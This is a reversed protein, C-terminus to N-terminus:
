SGFPARRWPSDAADLLTRAMEVFQALTDHGGWLSRGILFSAAYERWGPYNTQVLAAAEGIFEWAQTASLYGCDHAARAIAVTRAIDWAVMSRALDQRTAIGSQELMRWVSDLGTLARRADTSFGERALAPVWSDRGGAAYIERLPDLDARHGRDILSRLQASATPADKVEWAERLMQRLGPVPAGTTLSDAYASWHGSLPAGLGLQALRAGQEGGKPNRAIPGRSQAARTRLAIPLMIALAIVVIAAIGGFVVLMFGDDSM